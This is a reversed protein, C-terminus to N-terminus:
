SRELYETYQVLKELTEKTFGSVKWSAADTVPVWRIHSYDDGHEPRPEIGPKLRLVYYRVGIYGRKTSDIKTDFPKPESAPDENHPRLFTYEDPRIGVEEEIERTLAAAATEGGERHGGPLEWLRRNKHYALLV